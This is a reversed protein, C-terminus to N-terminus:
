IVQFVLVYLILKYHHFNFFDILLFGLKSVIYLFFGQCLKISQKVVDGNVFCLSGRVPAFTVAGENNQFVCHAENINEDKM